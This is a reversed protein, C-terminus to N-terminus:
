QRSELVYALDQHHTSLERQDVDASSSKGEVKKETLYRCKSGEPYGCTHYARAAKGAKSWYGWILSSRVLLGFSLIYNTESSIMKGKEQM